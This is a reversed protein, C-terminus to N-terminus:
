RPGWEFSVDDYKPKLAELKRNTEVGIGDTRAGRFFSYVVLKLSGSGAKDGLTAKYRQLKRVDGRIKDEIKDPLLRTKSTEKIELLLRPEVRDKSKRRGRIKKVIALDIKQQGEHPGSAPFESIVVHNATLGTRGEEKTCLLSHYLHCKVDSENEPHFKGNFFDKSLQDM